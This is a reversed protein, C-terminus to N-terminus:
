AAIEARQDAPAVHKKNTRQRAHNRQEPLQPNQGGHTRLAGAAESRQKLYQATGTHNAPHQRGDQNEAAMKSEKGIQAREKFGHSLGADFPDGQDQETKPYRVKDSGRNGSM